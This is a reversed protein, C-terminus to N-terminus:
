IIRLIGLVADVTCVVLNVIGRVIGDGDNSSVASATVSSNDNSILAFPSSGGLGLLTVTQGNITATVATPDNIVAGNISSLTVTATGSGAAFTAAVNGDADLSPLGSLGSLTFSTDASLYNWNGDGITSLIAGNSTILRSTTGTTPDTSSVGTVLANGVFGPETGPAGQIFYGSANSGVVTATQSGQGGGANFTITPSGPINAWNQAETGSSATPPPLYEQTVAVISNAPVITGNQGVVYYGDPDYVPPQGPVGLVVPTGVPLSSTLSANNDVGSSYYAGYRPHNLAVAAFLESAAADSSLQNTGSLANLDTQLWSPVSSGILQFTGYQPSASGFTFGSLNSGSPFTVGSNTSFLGIPDGPFSYNVFNTPPTATGGYGPIGPSGYSTGGFGFQLGAYEACYGAMSNGTTEINQQNVQIGLQQQAITQVSNVFSVIQANLATPPTGLMLSNDSAAAGDQNATSLSSLGFFAAVTNNAKFAIVVQDTLPNYFAQGNIGTNAANPVLQVTNAGPLPQWGAPVPGAGNVAGILESYLANTQQPSDAM